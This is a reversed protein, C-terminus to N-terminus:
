PLPLLIKLDFWGKAATVSVSGGYRRATYQISRLGFGHFASDGKTSRPLGNEMRVQGEYYNEVRILLMQRQASVALHILRRDEPSVQMVAEIANDLANGFLACIDAPEMFDLLAGNVVCTLTIRHQQCFLKKSSLVTDLVSNGTRSKTDYVAIDEELRNLWQSRREPDSESRLANIQHKMDHYKRNILDIGDQSQRFQVYQAELIGQMVELEYRSRLVRRQQHYAYIFALGALDVLTRITYIDSVISSTFPSSSVVFSLNSLAFVALAMTAVWVLVDVGTKGARGDRIGPRQLFYDGAFVLPYVLAAAPVALPHLKVQPLVSSLYYHLQWALSAAFESLLFCWATCCGLHILSMDCCSLLLVFMIAVAGLMSPIWFEVPLKETLVMEGCLAALGLALALVLRKGRIRRQAYFLLVPNLCALWQALATYIRPITPALVVSM